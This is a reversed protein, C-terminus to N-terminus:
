EKAKKAKQKKEPKSATSSAKTAGSSTMSSNTMAKDGSSELKEELVDMELEIEDSVAGVTSPDLDLNHDAKFLNELSAVLTALILSFDKLVFWVDGLRIRNALELAKVQGHQYFDYLYANLPTALEEGMDLFPIVAKELFVGDRM